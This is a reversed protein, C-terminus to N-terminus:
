ERSAEKVAREMERGAEKAKLTHRKDAVNKGKCLGILVKARGKTFYVKLPIITLGKEDVKTGLRIIEHKHMLLRRRREPEHNFRNAQIYPPIYAKVLFMENKVIDVYSDKLMMHGQRMSKVETGKLEMGAEYTDLIQYNHRAQKNNAVVKESM